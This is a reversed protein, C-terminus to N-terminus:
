INNILEEFVPAGFEINLRVEEATDYPVMYQKIVVRDPAGELITFCSMGDRRLGVSAVNVLLKGNVSMVHHNHNHGYAIVAEDCDGFAERLLQIPTDHACVKDWPSRPSAHCVLVMHGYALQYRRFFPSNTLVKCEEESLRKLLWERWAAMYRHFRTPVNKQNEEPDRLYEEANGRIIEAKQELLFKMLDNNGSSATVVDGAVVLKDAGGLADIAKVVARMGTINGHIDSVVALRM